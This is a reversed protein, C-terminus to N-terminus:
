SLRKLIFRVVCFFISVVHKHQYLRSDAGGPPEARSRGGGGHANYYCHNLRPFWDRRDRLPEFRQWVGECSFLAPFRCGTSAGSLAKFCVKMAENNNHTIIPYNEQYIVCKRWLGFWVFVKLLYFWKIVVDTRKGDRTQPVSKLGNIKMWESNIQNIRFFGRAPSAAAVGPPWCYIHFFVQFCIFFTVNWFGKVRLFTNIKSADSSIKKLFDLHIRYIGATM